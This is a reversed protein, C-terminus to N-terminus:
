RSYGSNYTALSVRLKTSYQRDGRWGEFWGGILVTDKPIIAGEVDREEDGKRVVIGSRMGVYQPHSDARKAFADRGTVIAWNASDGDDYGVMFADGVFPNLRRARCLMLFATLDQVSPKRGRKTPKVLNNLLISLSLKIPDMEGLPTYEIEFKDPPAQALEQKPEKEAM